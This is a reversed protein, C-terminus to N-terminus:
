KDVIAGSQQYSPGSSPTRRQYIQDKVYRYIEDRNVKHLALKTECLNGLNNEFVPLTNSSACLKVFPLRAFNTILQCLHAHKGGYEDLGDVFFCINVPFANNAIRDM